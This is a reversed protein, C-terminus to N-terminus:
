NDRWGSVSSYINYFKSARIAQAIRSKRVWGLIHERYKRILMNSVLFVPIFLVMSFIISGMVVSNNFKEIRWITSNYLSKWLGEFIGATLVAMGLNHFLPDLIYAVGSLALSGLIFASLNVRLILALLLVILNHISLIPTLGSILAFCFALSIQSPETESNLVKLLRATLRLM